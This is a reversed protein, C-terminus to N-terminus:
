TQITAMGVRPVCDKISRVREMDLDREEMPM